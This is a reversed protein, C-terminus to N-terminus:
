AADLRFYHASGHHPIDQTAGLGLYIELDFNVTGRRDFADINAVAEFGQFYKPGIALVFQSAAYADDPLTRFIAAAATFGVPVARGFQAIITEVRYARNIAVIEISLEFLGRGSPELPAGDGGATKATEFGQQLM